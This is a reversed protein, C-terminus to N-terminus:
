NKRRSAIAARLIPDIKRAFVPTTLENNFADYAGDAMRQRKEPDRLLLEIADVWEDVTDVLMGTEGHKFFLPHDVANSAVVAVHGALYALVKGFSKGQSFENEICVPQIGVAADAVKALYHEYSMPPIAICEVGLKKPASFYEAAQPETTGFLWFTFRMRAGLKTVVEHVLEAERHYGLPSAHAWALIPPRDKPATKSTEMPPTCTWVVHTVPNHQAFRGAVFSSGGVVASADAGARAVEAHIRPDLIDADDADLVCPVPAYLAPRNLPHRTQQMLIVDPKELAIARRRQSLGLPAPVIVVRWGLKRLEPVILWARLNSAPDWPQGSPFIMVRPDGGLERVREAHMRAEHYARRAVARLSAVAASLRSM